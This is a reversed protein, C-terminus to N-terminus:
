RIIGISRGLFESDDYMDAEFFGVQRRLGGEFFYKNATPKLIDRHLM